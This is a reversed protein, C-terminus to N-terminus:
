ILQNLFSNGSPHAESTLAEYVTAGMDAFSTRVGLDVGKKLSPSYAIVPVHERTHDTGRYTPDNGHDATLILLDDAHMAEMIKGIATDAEELAMAFGAVDRRHGYNMDFDILNVYVLGSERTQVQELTVRLGDTNGKTDINEPVGRGAFINSIKGVGLVPIKKATLDDLITPGFPLQAYDKRNYTRKFPTGKRPDGVFPRAIVRGVNLEDCIKRASKCISYLRELGFVEEHAAVQWVSDGSTYLIPKGTELHEIGLKEIIETGSAPYNGLVGPLQNEKVWRDLTEPSFGKEFVPFAHNVVLGTMEWHGSTTDKGKSQERAKGYAGIIESPETAGAIPTVHHIGLKLLNPLKLPSGRKKLTEAATNGLTNAGLDGFQKADPTEGVGVGDLVIWFVRNAKKMEIIREATM